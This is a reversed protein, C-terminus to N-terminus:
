MKNIKEELQNSVGSAASIAQYLAYKVAHKELQELGSITTGGPTCVDYKLKALDHKEKLVEAVGEVLKFAHIKAKEYPIGSKVAGDIIGEILHYMFAGGSGSLATVAAFMSEPSKEVLGFNSLLSLLEGEEKANVNANPAYFVSAKGYACLPNSMIRVAKSLDSNLSRELFNLSVGAAVSVVLQNSYVAQVEKLVDKVM